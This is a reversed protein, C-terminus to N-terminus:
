SISFIKFWVCLYSGISKKCGAFHHRLGCELQECLAHEAFQLMEQSLVEQRAAKPPLRQARGGLGGGGAKKKEAWLKRVKWTCCGVHLCIQMCICACAGAYVCVCVSEGGSLYKYGYMCVSVCVCVCLELHMPLCTNYLCAIYKKVHICVCARVCDCAYGGWSKKAGFQLNRLVTKLNILMNVYMNIYMYVNMSIYMHEFRCIYMNAHVCIYMSPYIWPSNIFVM